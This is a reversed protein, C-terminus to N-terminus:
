HLLFDLHFHCIAGGRHICSREEVLAKPQGIFYPLVELAGIKFLCVDRSGFYPDQFIDVVEDKPLVYVDCSSKSLKQISYSCNKEHLVMLENFFSEYLDVHHNKQTLMFGLSSNQHTQFFYRGIAMIDEDNFNLYRLYKMLDILCKLNIEKDLELLAGPAIHLFHRLSERFEFGYRKQIFEFFNVLTRRKSFGGVLYKEPIFDPAKSRKISLLTPDLYERYLEDINLELEDCFNIVSYLKLKNKGQKFLHYKNESIDLFTAMESDSIALSVQIRTINGLLTGELGKEASPYM